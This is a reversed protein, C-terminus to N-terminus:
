AVAREQAAGKAAAISASKQDLFDSM